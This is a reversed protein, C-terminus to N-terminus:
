TAPETSPAAPTAVPEPEPDPAFAMPTWVGHMYEYVRNETTLIMQGTALVNMAIIKHPSELVKAAM